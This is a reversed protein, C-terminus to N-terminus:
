KKCCIFCFYWCSSRKMKGDVMDCFEKYNLKGDNNQDFVAMALKIEYPDFDKGSLKLVEELEKMDIYGDSNTDYARFAIKVFDEEELTDGHLLNYLEEYDILKDGNLDAMKCVLDFEAKKFDINKNGEILTKM